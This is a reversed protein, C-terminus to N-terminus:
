GEAGGELAQKQHEFVQRIGAEGMELMRDLTARSFPAGEASGQVEIFEGKGTMVLNMDVEAKSDESYDLDAVPEGDVVGVSIAGLQDVLPWSRLIRREDMWTLADHLAVWAGSIATTRTGGDAQLVDCDVWLTKEPLRELDVVGRLARGILRQIELTRGSMRGRTVERQTRTDTAGPIM